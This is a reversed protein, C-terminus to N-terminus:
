QVTQAQPSVLRFVQIRRNFSDVVAVRGDQDSAIGAPFSFEGPDGGTTGISMLYGGDQNFLAVSDLLADSIWLHGASDVAIGKVRPMEGPSDGLTGFSAEFQGSRTNLRQLRFNLTDVIWLNSSDLALSTPFNFQGAESGREGHENSLRLNMASSDPAEVIEYELVRHKGTETM